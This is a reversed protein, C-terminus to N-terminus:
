FNGSVTQEDPTEDGPPAEMPAEWHEFLTRKVTTLHQRMFHAAREPDRNVIATLIAQHQRTYIRQRQPTLSQHRLQGWQVHSRAANLLDFLHEILSNHSARGIARHLAGDWREWAQHGHVDMSKQLCRNMEDIDYSTANIAALSAIAPELVLRADMLERPNTLQRVDDGGGRESPHRAVVTGRGPSRQILGEAELRALADRVARRGLQMETALEREPPLRTGERVDTRQLRQRLLRLATAARSEDRRSSVM